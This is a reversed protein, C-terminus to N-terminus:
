KVDLTGAGVRLKVPTTKCDRDRENDVTGAKTVGDVCAGKPLATGDYKLTGADLRASLPGTLKGLELTGAALEVDVAQDPPVLVRVKAGFDKGPSVVLGNEPTFSASCSEYDKESPEKTMSYGFITLAKDHTWEVTYSLKGAPGPLVVLEGRDARIKLTQAPKLAAESSVTKAAHAAGAIVLLAALFTKM